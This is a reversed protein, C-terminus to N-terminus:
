ELGLSICLDSSIGLLGGLGPMALDKENEPAFVDFLVALRAFHSTLSSFIIELLPEIFMFRFMGSGVWLAFM